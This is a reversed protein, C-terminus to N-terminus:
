KNHCALCIQSGQQTIKVLKAGGDATYTNHVDHCSSCELKNSYLMKAQITGTDQQAGSGITVQHNADTPSWLSKNLNVLATDYTIGIPHDDALTTGLNNAASIYTSGSRMTGGSIFADVAITGDHCSMCLKSLGGLSPNTSKLTASSYFTFNTTTNQHSWLPADTVSIDANHPAHCAVCIQGGAGNVAGTWSQTSFDHASGAIQGALAQQAVLLLLATACRGLLLRFNKM